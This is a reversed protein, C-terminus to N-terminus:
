AVLSSETTSANTVSAYCSFNPDGSGIYIGPLHVLGVTIGAGFSSVFYACLLSAVLSAMCALEANSQM